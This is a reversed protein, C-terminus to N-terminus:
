APRREREPAASLALAALDAGEAITGGGGASDFRLLALYTTAEPGEEAMWERITALAEDESEFDDLLNRSEIDWVEYHM